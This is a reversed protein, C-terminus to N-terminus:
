LAHESEGKREQNYHHLNENEEIKYVFSTKFPAFTTM